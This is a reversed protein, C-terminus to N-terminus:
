GLRHMEVVNKKLKAVSLAKVGDVVIYSFYNIVCSSLSSIIISLIINCQAIYKKGSNKM